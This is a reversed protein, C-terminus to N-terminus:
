SSSHYFLLISVNGQLKVFCSFSSLVKLNGRLLSLHNRNKLQTELFYNKRRYIHDQSIWPRTHKEETKLSFNKHRSFVRLLIYWYNNKYYLNLWNLKNGYENLWHCSVSYTILSSMNQTHNKQTMFLSESFQVM